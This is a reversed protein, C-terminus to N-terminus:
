YCMREPTWYYAPFLCDMYLLVAGQLYDTKQVLLCGIKVEIESLFDEKFVKGAYKTDGLLIGIFVWLM